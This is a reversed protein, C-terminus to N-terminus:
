YCISLGLGESVLVDEVRQGSGEARILAKEFQDVPTGKQSMQFEIKLSRIAGGTVTCYFLLTDTDTDCSDGGLTVSSSTLYDSRESTVSAIRTAQGDWACGFTTAYGDANLTTIDDSSHTGEGTCASSTVSRANRIMREMVGLAYEGNHKVDSFREAKTNTRTTSFFAQALVAGLGSIIAVAVLLEILTFGNKKKM